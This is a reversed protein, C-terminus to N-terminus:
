DTVHRAEKMKAFLAEKLREADEKRLGPVQESGKETATATFIIISWVGFVRGTMSQVIHIDQINEYPIMTYSHMLVGKRVLFCQGEMTFIISNIFLHSYAFGLTLYLLTLGLVLPLFLPYMKATMLALIVFFVCFLLIVPLSAAFNAIVAMPSLKAFNDAPTKSLVSLSGGMAQKM